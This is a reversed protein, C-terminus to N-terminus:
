RAAPVSPRPRRHAQRFMAQPAHFDAYARARLFVESAQADGSTLWVMAPHLLLWILLVLGVTVFSLGVGLVLAAAITGEVAVIPREVGLYLRPRILSPHIPHAVPLVGGDAEAGGGHGRDVGIM